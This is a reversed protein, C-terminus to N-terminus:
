KPVTDCAKCFEGSRHMAWRACVPPPGGPKPVDRSPSLNMPVVVVGGHGGPEVAGDEAADNLRGRVWDSLKREGGAASVWLEKERLTVRLKVIEDRAQKTAV